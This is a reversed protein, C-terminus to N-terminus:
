DEIREGHEKIWKEVEKNCPVCTFGDTGPSILLSYCVDVRTDKFYHINGKVKQSGEAYEPTKTCSFIIASLMLLAITKKM